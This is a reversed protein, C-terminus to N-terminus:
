CFLSHIEELGLIKIQCAKIEKSIVSCFYGDMELTFYGLIRTVNINNLNDNIGIGLMKLYAEKKTWIEFFKKDYHNTSKMIKKEEEHFCYDIIEHPIESIEEVDIGVEADDNFAVYVSKGSHSLNFYIDNNVSHPKGNEDKIIKVDQKKTNTLTLMGYLVILRSYLLNMKDQINHFSSMRKIDEAGLYRCLEYEKSTIYDNKNEFIFITLM